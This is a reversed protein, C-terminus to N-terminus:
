AEVDVGSVLPVTRTAGRAEDTTGLTRATGKLGRSRMVDWENDVWWDTVSFAENLTRSYVVWDIDVGGLNKLLDVYQSMKAIAHPPRLGLASVGVFFLPMYLRGRQRPVNREGYFSLCVALERPNSTAHVQGTRVIADGEPYVPKTGQADYATVRVEGTIPTIAELGALMDECLSQPDASGAVDKFHPTVMM